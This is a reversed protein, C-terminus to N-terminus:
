SVLVQLGLKQQAFQQENKGIHVVWAQPQVGTALVAWKLQCMFGSSGAKKAHIRYLEVDVVGCGDLDYGCLM